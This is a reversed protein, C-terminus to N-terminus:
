HNRTKQRYLGPSCKYIKRFAKSFSFSNAYGSEIAITEIKIDSRLLMSVANEMKMRRIIEYPSEKYIQSSLAFFHSESICAIKAVEKITWKKKLNNKVANFAKKIQETSQNIETPINELEKEIYKILMFTSDIGSLDGSREQLYLLQLLLEIEKIYGAKRFFPENPLKINAPFNPLKPRFHIWFVSLDNDTANGYFHPTLNNPLFVVDGKQAIITQNNIKFYMSGSVVFFMEDASNNCFIVKYGKKLVKSIGGCIPAHRYREPEGFNGFSVFKEQSGEPIIM